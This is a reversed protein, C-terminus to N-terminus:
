NTVLAHSMASDSGVDIRFLTTMILRVSTIARGIKKVKRPGRDHYLETWPSDMRSAINM